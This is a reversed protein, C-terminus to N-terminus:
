FEGHLIEAEKKKVRYLHVWIKLKKNRPPFRLRNTNKNWVRFTMEGIEQKALCLCFDVAVKLYLVEASVSLVARLIGQRSKKWHNPTVVSGQPVLKTFDM